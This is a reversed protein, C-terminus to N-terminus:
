QKLISDYEQALKQVFRPQNNWFDYPKIHPHQRQKYIYNDQHPIFMDIPVARTLENLQELNYSLLGNAQEQPNNLHHRNWVNEKGTQGGFADLRRLEADDFGLPIKSLFAKPFVYNHYMNCIAEAHDTIAWAKEGLDVFYEVDLGDRYIRKDPLPTKTSKQRNNDAHPTNNLAIDDTYHYQVGGYRLADDKAKSLQDNYVETFEDLAYQITYDLIPHTKLFDKAISVWYKSTSHEDQYTNDISDNNQTNNNNKGGGDMQLAQPLARLLITTRGALLLNDQGVLLMDLDNLFQFYREVNLGHRTRYNDRDFGLVALEYGSRKYNHVTRAGGFYYLMSIRNYDNEACAILLHALIARYFMHVSKVQGYDILGITGNLENQSYKPPSPAKPLTSPTYKPSYYNNDTSNNNTHGFHGGDKDKKDALWLINGPHCDSNVFHGNFLQEGHLKYLREIISYLPPFQEFEIILEELDILGNDYGGNHETNKDMVNVLEGLGLSNLTSKDMEYPKRYTYNQVFWGLTWNYLWYMMNYGKNASLLATKYTELESRTPIKFSGPNNQFQATIEEVSAGRQAAYKKILGELFVALSPGPLYEMTLCHKSCLSPIPKPIRVTEGLEPHKKIIINDFDQNAIELQVGERVFDFESLFAREIEKLLPLHQPQVLACFQRMTAMDIGFTTEINPYQLKLVIEQGNALVARHAQGISAAGLPKGEIFAFNEGVDGLEEEIMPLLETLPTYPCDDRFRRLQVGWAKPVVDDRLSLIQANKVYYGRLEAIINYVENAYHVHLEGFRSSQYKDNEAPSLPLTYPLLVPSFLNALQPLITETMIDRIPALVLTLIPPTSYESTFQNRHYSLFSLTSQFQHKIIKLFEPLLVKQVKIGGEILVPIGDQISQLSPETSMLQNLNQTLNTMEPTAQLHQLLHDVNYIFTNILDMAKPITTGTLPCVDQNSKPSPQTSALISSHSIPEHENNNDHKFSNNLEKQQELESQLTPSSKSMDNRIQSTLKLKPSSVMDKTNDNENVAVVDVDAENIEATESEAVTEELKLLNTHEVLYDTLTQRLRFELAVSQYHVFIPFARTWFAMSRHLGNLPVGEFFTYLKVGIISCLQLLVLGFLLRFYRKKKLKKTPPTKPTKPTEPTEPTEPPRLPKPIIAINQPTKPPNKLSNHTHNFLLDQELLARDRFLSPSQLAPIPSTSSSPPNSSNKSNSSMKRTPFIVANNKKEFNKTNLGHNSSFQFRSPTSSHFSNHSHINGHNRLIPKIQTINKFLNNINNINNNYGLSNSQHSRQTNFFRCQASNQLLSRKKLRRTTNAFM